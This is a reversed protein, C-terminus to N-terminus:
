HFRKNICLNYISHTSFGIPKGQPTTVRETTHNDFNYNLCIIDGDLFTKLIIPDQNRNFNDKFIIWEFKDIKISVSKSNFKLISDDRLQIFLDNIPKLKLILENEKEKKVNQINLIQKIYDM